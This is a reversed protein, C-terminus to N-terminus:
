GLMAIEFEIANIEDRWSKRQALLEQLNYPMQDNALQAEYCKIVKYDTEELIKKLEPLRHSIRIHKNEEEIEEYTKEKKVIQNNEIGYIGNTIKEYEELSIDWGKIASEDINDDGSLYYFRNLSDLKYYFIM